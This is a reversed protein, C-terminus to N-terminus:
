LHSTRATEEFKPFTFWRDTEWITRVDQDAQDPKVEERLTQLLSGVGPPAQARARGGMLLLGVLAFVTIARTVERYVERGVRSRTGCRACIM